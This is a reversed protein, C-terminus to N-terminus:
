LSEINVSNIGHKNVWRSKPNKYKDHGGIYPSSVQVFLAIILIGKKKGM